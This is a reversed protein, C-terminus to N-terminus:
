LHPWYSQHQAAAEGELLPGYLEPPDVAGLFVDRSHCKLSAGAIEGLTAASCGYVVTKLGAWYLAGACMACPETSTFLIARGRDAEGITGCAQSVANMEAHRTVDSEVNVTNEAEVIIRDDLVILAGFPHNGAVVSQGALVLARKMWSINQM